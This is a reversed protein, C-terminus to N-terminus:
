SQRSTQLNELENKIIRSETIRIAANLADLFTTQSLLYAAKIEELVSKRLELKEKESM